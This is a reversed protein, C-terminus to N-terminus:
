PFEGIKPILPTPPLHRYMCTVALNDNVQGSVSMIRRVRRQQGGRPVVKRSIIEQGDPRTDLCKLAGLFPGSRKFAEPGTLAEGRDLLIDELVIQAGECFVAVGHVADRGPDLSVAQLNGLRNKALPCV